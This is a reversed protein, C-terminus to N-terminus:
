GEETRWKVTYDLEEIQEKRMRMRKREEKEKDEESEERLKKKDEEIKKEKAESIELKGRKPAKEEDEEGDM